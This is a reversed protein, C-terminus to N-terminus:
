ALDNGHWGLEMGVCRTYLEGDLLRVREEHLGLESRVVDHRQELEETTKTGDAFLEVTELASRSVDSLRDWERRACGAFWLRAKREQQELDFVTFLGTAWPCSLWTPEDREM